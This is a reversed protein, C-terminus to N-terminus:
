SEKTLTAILVAKDRETLNETLIDKKYGGYREEERRVRCLDRGPEHQNPTDRDGYSGRLKSDVDNTSPKVVYSCKQETAIYDISPELEQMRCETEHCFDDKDITYKEAM